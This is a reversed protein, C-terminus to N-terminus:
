VPPRDVYCCYDFGCAIVIASQDCIGSCCAAPNRPDCSARDPLCTTPACVRRGTKDKPSCAGGCCDANKSCVIGEPRCISRADAEGRFRGLAGAAAAAGMGALVGRRTRRVVLKRTLEDFRSNDMYM